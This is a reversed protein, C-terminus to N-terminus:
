NGRATLVLQASVAGPGAAAVNLSDVLIGESELRAIWTMLAGARAAPVSVRVRDAGDNDVSGLVIGAADARTRVADALPGGLLLPPQRRQIAKVQALRAQAEGLTVVAETYRARSSSLGDRVPRIVGAWIITVAALALMVLILRRERLSRGTFWQSLASM